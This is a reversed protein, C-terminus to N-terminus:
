LRSHKAALMQGLGALEPRECKREVPCEFTPELRSLLCKRWVAPKVECAIVRLGFMVVGEGCCEVAPAM